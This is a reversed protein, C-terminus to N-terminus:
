EMVLIVSMGVLCLVAIIQQILDLTPDGANAAVGLSERVGGIGFVYTAYGIALMFLAFRSAFTSSSSELQASFNGLGLPAAKKGARHKALAQCKDQIDKCIQLTNKANPDITPQVSAAIDGAYNYFALLLDEFSNLSTLIKATKGRRIKVVGEFVKGNNYCLALTAIAMVQPIACFRFIWKHELQSMYELSETAHSLANTIMHNLCQLAEARNEPEKFDDLKEGYLGWIEKPWFMRPAPEEEIDELYDRIINTKQLFLGMDNALEDMSAFKRDELECAAFLQSLGIGVLGAVYHCYLDYEETTKVEKPIFEAMGLGMRKTIDYIVKQYVEDLSLFAETVKNFELMLTKYNGEGCNEVTFDRKYINEAFDDLMELKEHVDLAMDDEVTDLGRLVLYFVCIANRLEVPLQQIVIAFSRSVRNLMDYCFSWTPNSPLRKAERAALYMKGLAFAEEPHLIMQLLKSSGMAVKRRDASIIRESSL